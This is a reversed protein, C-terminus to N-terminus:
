DAYGLARLRRAAEESLEPRDREVYDLEPCGSRWARLRQRLRHVQQPKEAALDTTEGPDRHLDYLEARRARPSLILKWRETRLSYHRDSYQSFVAPEPEEPAAPTLLDRGAMHAPPVLGAAALITPAIDVSSVLRPEVRGSPVGIGQLILPVHLLEDYLTDRHLLGGHEAFEEGHDSTVIVLSRELFGIAGLDAFLERLVDDTYRIGGDYMAELFRIDDPELQSFADNQIPLLNDNTPAFDSEFRGFLERYGPPPEYPSHIEYTHFLVFVPRPDDGEALFGLLRERGDAIGRGGDFFREFGRDFGFNRSMYGGDTVAVTRYGHEALMEQLLPLGRPVADNRPEGPSPQMGVRHSQQYLSSLITTHSPPTGHTNVFAAAFRTGRGALEDLFPSTPRGYGYCSLHDARLADLSILLVNPGPSGPPAAPSDTCGSALLLAALLTARMPDCM